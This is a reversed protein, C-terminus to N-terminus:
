LRGAAILDIVRQTGGPVLQRWNGGSRMLNRVQTAEVNKPARKDLVEVHFGHKEFLAIKQDEWVSFARVYQVTASPPPVYDQWKSPDHLHFPVISVRRLDEGADFLCQKIMEARQCFSFPNADDLHRHSSAAEPARDSRDPNTIGIVLLSCRELGRRIYALHEVHVPQFRGHVMGISFEM